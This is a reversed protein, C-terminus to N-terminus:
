VVLKACVEELPPDDMVDMGEPVNDPWVYGHHIYQGVEWSYYEPKKRMLSAKHSMVMPKWGWWWPFTPNRCHPLYEM